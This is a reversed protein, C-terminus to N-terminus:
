KSLHAIKKNVIALKENLKDIKDSYAEVMDMYQEAEIRDAYGHIYTNCTYYTVKDQAERRAKTYLDIDKRIDKKINHLTALEKKYNIFTFLTKM